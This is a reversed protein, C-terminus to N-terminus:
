SDPSWTVTIFISPAVATTHFFGYRRDPLPPVCPPVGISPATAPRTNNATSTIKATMTTAFDTASIGCASAATM